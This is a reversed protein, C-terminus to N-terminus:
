KKQLLDNELLEIERVDTRIRIEKDAMLRLIDALENRNMVHARLKRVSDTRSLLSCNTMIVDGSLLPYLGM